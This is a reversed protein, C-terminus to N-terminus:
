CSRLERLVGAVIESVIVKRTRYRNIASLIAGYIRQEKSNISCIVNCTPVLVRAVEMRNGEKKISSLGGLLAVAPFGMKTLRYAMEPSRGKGEACLVVNGSREKELFSEVMGLTLIFTEFKNVNRCFALYVMGINM